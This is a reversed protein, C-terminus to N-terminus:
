EVFIEKSKMHVIIFNLARINTIYHDPSSQTIEVFPKLYAGNNIINELTNRTM